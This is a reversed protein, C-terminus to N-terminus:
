QGDGGFCEQIRQIEPMVTIEWEEDSFTISDCAATLVEKPNMGNKAAVAIMVDAMENELNGVRALRRQAELLEDPLFTSFNLVDWAKKLEEGSIFYNPYNRGGWGGDTRIPPTGAQALWGGRRIAEPVQDLRMSQPGDEVYLWDVEEDNLATRAVVRLEVERTEPEEVLDNNRVRYNIINMQVKCTRSDASM